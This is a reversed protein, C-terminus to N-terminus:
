GLNLSPPNGHAEVSEDPYNSNAWATLGVILDAVALVTGEIPRSSLLDHVAISGLAISSLLAEHCIRMQKEPSARVVSLPSFRMM